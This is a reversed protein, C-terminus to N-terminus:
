KAKVNVIWTKGVRTAKVGEPLKNNRCQWTVAQRTLNVIKAYEIISLQQNSM